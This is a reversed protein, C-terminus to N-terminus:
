TAAGRFVAALKGEIWDLPSFLMCALHTQRGLFLAPFALVECGPHGLAATLILSLGIFGIVGAAYVGGQLFILFAPGVTIAAGLWPHLWRLNRSVVLHVVTYLAVLAVFVGAVRLRGEWSASLLPPTILVVMVVGLVLRLLRSVPTAEPIQAIRDEESANM